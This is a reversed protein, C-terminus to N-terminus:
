LQFTYAIPKENKILAEILSRGDKTTTSPGTSFLNVRRETSPMHRSSTPLENSTPTPGHTSSREDMASSQTPSREDIIRGREPKSMRRDKRRRLPLLGRNISTWFKIAEEMPVDFREPNICPFNRGEIGFKVSISIQQTIRELFNILGQTEYNHLNVESSLKFSKQKRAILAIIEGFSELETECMYMGRGVRVEFSSGVVERCMCDVSLRTFRKEGPGEVMVLSPREKISSSILFSFGLFRYKGTIFSTPYTKHIAFELTIISKCQLMFTDM